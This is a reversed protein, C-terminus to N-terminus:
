RSSDKEAQVREDVVCKSVLVPVILANIVGSVTGYIYTDIDLEAKGIRRTRSLSIISRVTRDPRLHDKWGKM